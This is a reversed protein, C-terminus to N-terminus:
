MSHRWRMRPADRSPPRNIALHIRDRVELARQLRQITSHCLTPLSEDGGSRSHQVCGAIWRWASPLLERAGIWYFTGKNARVVLKGDHSRWTQFTDQARLYLGVIALAERVSLINVGRGIGSNLRHLYPRDTIFLEAHMARAVQTAYSDARRREAAATPGLNSYVMSGEDNAAIEALRDNTVGFSITSSTSWRV